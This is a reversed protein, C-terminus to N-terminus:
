RGLAGVRRVRAPHYHFYSLAKSTSIEVVLCRELIDLHIHMTLFKM